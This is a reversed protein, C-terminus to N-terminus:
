TEGGEEPVARREKGLSRAQVAWLLSRAPPGALPAEPARGRKESAPPLPLPAGEAVTELVISTKLERVSPLSRFHGELVGALDEPSAVRLKVLWGDEGAVRHVEEVGPIAALQEGTSGDSLQEDEAVHVFALLPRGLRRADLRTEYGRIVGREELKRIREFVATPTLGVRRAIEAKPIAASEQLISLIERDTKHIRSDEIM